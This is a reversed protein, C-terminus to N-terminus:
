TFHCFSVYDRKLGQIRYLLPKRLVSHYHLFIGQEAFAKIQDLDAIMFNTTEEQQLAIDEEAFEKYFRYVDM